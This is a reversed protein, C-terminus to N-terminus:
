PLSYILNILTHYFIILNVMILIFALLKTYQLHNLDYIQMYLSFNHYKHMPYYYIYNFLDM